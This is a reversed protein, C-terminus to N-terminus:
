AGRLGTDPVRANKWALLLFHLGVDFFAIELHFFQAFRADRRGHPVFTEDFVVVPYEVGCTGPAQLGKQGFAPGRGRELLRSRSLLYVEVRGLKAAADHGAAAETRADVVYYSGNDQAQVVDVFHRGDPSEPVSEFAQRGGVMVLWHFQVRLFHGVDVLLAAGDQTGRSAGLRHLLDHVRQFPHVDANQKGDAPVARQSAGLRYGLFDAPPTELDGHHSDGLGDVVVDGVHVKGESEHRRDRLGAPHDVAGMGFGCAGSVADPQHLQHPPMGPKDGGM